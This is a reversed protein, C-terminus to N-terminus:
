AVMVGLVVKGLVQHVLATRVQVVVVVVLIDVVPLGL